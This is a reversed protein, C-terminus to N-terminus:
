HTRENLEGKVVHGTGNLNRVRFSTAWAPAFERAFSKADAVSSFTGTHYWCRGDAGTWNLGYFTPM